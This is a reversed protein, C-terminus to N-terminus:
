AKLYAKVDATMIDDSFKRAFLYDGSTLSFFEEKTFTYPAGRGWDLYRLNCYELDSRKFGYWKDKYPSMKLLTQIFEEDGCYVDSFINKVTAENEVIYRAFDDTISFWNSGKAVYQQIDKIRNVGVIMEALLVIDRLLKLFTFKKRGVKDQLYYYYRLRKNAIKSGEFDDFDVFEFGANEDFFRHIEEQSKLPMDVGSMLHYYDYKDTTTAAKLLSIPAEILSYHGWCIDIPDVFHLQKSACNNIFEVKNFDKAKSDVLIYFDNRSDNLVDILFQLQNWKNHCVFLYAHKGM